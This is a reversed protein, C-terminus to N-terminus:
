EDYLNAHGGQDTVITLKDKIVFQLGTDPDVLIDTKGDKDTYMEYNKGDYYVTETENCGSFCACMSLLGCMILIKKM